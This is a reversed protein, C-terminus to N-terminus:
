RQQLSIVKYNGKFQISKDWNRLTRNLWAADQLMALYVVYCKKTHQKEWIPYSDFEGNTVILSGEPIVELLWNTYVPQFFSITGNNKISLIAKDRLELNGNRESLWAAEAPLLASNSGLNATNIFYSQANENNRNNRLQMYNLSFTGQISKGSIEIMSNIESQENNHIIGVNNLSSNRLAQYANYCYIESQM